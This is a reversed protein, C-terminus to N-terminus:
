DPLWRTHYSGAITFGVGAYLSVAATNARDTQLYLQHIGHGRAYAGIAALVARAAGSGRAPPWTAMCQVSALRGDLVSLGSAIVEGKRIASFFSRPEPVRDVLEPAAARRDQSLGELYVRYWGSSPHHHQVVEIDPAPPALDDRGATISKVMTLHEGHRRWGREALAGDLGAPVSVDSITFRPTTSRARYFAVVADIAADLDGSFALAAVSNARVSGGSSSRALWGGVVATERAPWGRVAAQEIALLDIAAADQDAGVPSPDLERSM